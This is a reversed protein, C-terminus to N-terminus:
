EALGNTRDATQLMDIAADCWAINEEEFMVGRLLPLYLLRQEYSLQSVDAFDHKQLNQYVVLKERHIARQRSLENILAEPSVLMGARIKVLLDERLIGPETPQAIWQALHYRGGATLEYLKETSQAPLSEYDSSVRLVYGQEELNALERYIQQHTAQWFYGISRNFRKALGYGSIPGSLLTALIAHSLAM